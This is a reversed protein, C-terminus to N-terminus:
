LSPRAPLMLCLQSEQLRSRVSVSSCFNAKILEVRNVTDVLFDFKKGFRMRELKSALFYWIMVLEIFVMGAIFSQM